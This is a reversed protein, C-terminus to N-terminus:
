TGALARRLLRGHRCQRSRAPSRRGRPGAPAGGRRGPEAQGPRGRRALTLEEPSADAPLDRDLAAARRPPRREVEVRSSARPDSTPAPEEGPEVGAEAAPLTATMASGELVLLARELALRGPEGPESSRLRAILRELTRRRDRGEALELGRRAADVADALIGDAARVEALADFADAAEPRRGLEALSQARGLLAAEDRPALRLAVDYHRLAEAPRRGRMCPRVPVRTRRPGTPRSRRRRRTPM